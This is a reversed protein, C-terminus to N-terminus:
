VNSVQNRTVKRPRHKRKLLRDLGPLDNNIDSLIVKNASATFDRKAKDAEERSNIEMKPSVLDSVTSQFMEWDTFNDVPELRNRIRVHDVIHFIIPLHDSHLADSIIVDSLRVKQYVVTDVV